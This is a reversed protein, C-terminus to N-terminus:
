PSRQATGEGQLAVTLGDEAYSGVPILGPSAAVVARTHAVGCRRPHRSSIPMRGEGAEVEHRFKESFSHTVHTGVGWERPLAPHTGAEVSSYRFGCCTMCISVRQISVVDRKVMSNKMELQQSFVVM